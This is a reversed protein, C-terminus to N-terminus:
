ECGQAEAWAECGEICASRDSASGISSCHRDWDCDNRLDWCSPLKPEPPPKPAPKPAPKPSAKPATKVAGTPAKTAARGGKVRAPSKKGEAKQSAEPKPADAAEVTKAEAEIDDSTSTPDVLGGCAIIWISLCGIVLRKV